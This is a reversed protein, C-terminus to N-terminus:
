PLRHQMVLFIQISGAFFLAFSAFGLAVAFYKAQNGWHYWKGDMSEKLYTAQTYLAQALYRIATSTGACGLGLMYYLWAFGLPSLLAGISGQGGAKLSEALLALLAAAAGGNIVISSKLATQGAEVVSKFMELTMASSITLQTKWEELQRQRSSDDAKVQSNSDREWRDLFTKLADIQVTQNSQQAHKLADRLEQLLDHSNM